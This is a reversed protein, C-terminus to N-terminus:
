FGQPQQGVWVPEAQQKEQLLFLEGHCFELFDEAFALALDGSVQSLELLCAENLIATGALVDKIADLWRRWLNKGDRTQARRFRRAGGFVAVTEAQDEALPAVLHPCV